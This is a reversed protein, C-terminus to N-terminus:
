MHAPLESSKEGSDHRGSRSSVQSPLPARSILQKGEEERGRQQVLHWDAKEDRMKGELGRHWKGQVSAERFCQKSEVEYINWLNNRTTTELPTHQSTTYLWIQLKMSSDSLALSM